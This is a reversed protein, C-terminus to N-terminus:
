PLGRVDLDAPSEVVFRWEVRREEGPALTMDWTFQELRTRGTPQPRMDLVKVKIREHRPVPLHDKLIVRQPADTRNALTVRYGLTVKRIGSQLLIGKDTDREVLERKVTVNDNVGLYLPMEAGEATLELQTSGVYEDGAAGVHFVALEGPLLVHGTSNIPLARLHAGSAVAPEAVYEFRCPLEHEGLSLTHPSGDSPVDVGGPLRFVQAAGSREVEATAMEAEVAVSVDAEMVMDTAAAAFKPAAAMRMAPRGPAALPVPPPPPTYVTLYWPPPEDPLRVAASPRATSLALVANTWNEGTRQSVLAQQTLQVRGADEDVRADYRPHWEASPAQYSLEIAVEGPSTTSLRVIAAIRDPWYGGSLQALERERADLERQTEDRQRRAEQQQEAIRQSAEATYSLVAGADEPKATGRAVGWALSRASQEGLAGLWGRQQELLAIRADHRAVAGRLRDIEERLRRVQDEPPNALHVREAEVGLIRTGAPGTGSVRFSSTDTESPLEGIRLAHEGAAEVTATGRRTVQAGTPYVTVGTITTQPEIAM